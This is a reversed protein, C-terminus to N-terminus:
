LNELTTEGDCFRMFSGCRQELHALDDANFIDRHRGTTGKNFNYVRTDGSRLAALDPYALLREVPQKLATALQDVVVTSNRTLTDYDFAISLDSKLWPITEEDVIKAMANIAARHSTLNAFFPWPLNEARARVGAEYASLAADGPHRYSMLVRIRQWKLVTGYRPRFKSHTKIVTHEGKHLQKAIDRTKFLPGNWFSRKKELDGTFLRKKVADPDSGAAFCSQRALNALFTSASKQQGYVIFLMRNGKSIENFTFPGKVKDIVQRKEPPHPPIQSILIGTKTFFYVFKGFPQKNVRSCLNTRYCPPLKDSIQM